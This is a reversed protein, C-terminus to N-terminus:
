NLCNEGVGGSDVSIGYFKAIEGVKYDDLKYKMVAGGGSKAKKLYLM